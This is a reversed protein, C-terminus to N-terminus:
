HLVPLRAKESFIEKGCFRRSSIPPGPTVLPLFSEEPSISRGRGRRESRERRRFGSVRKTKIKVKVPGKVTGYGPHGRRGSGTAPWLIM